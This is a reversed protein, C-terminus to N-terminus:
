AHRRDKGTPRPRAAPLRLGHTWVRSDVHIVRRGATDRYVVGYPQGAIALVYTRAPRQQPSETTM